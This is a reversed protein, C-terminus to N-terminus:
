PEIIETNSVISGTVEGNVAFFAATQRVLELFVAASSNPDIATNGATVPTTHSGEVYRTILRAPESSAAADATKIAEITAALPETGTLPAPFNDIVFGSDLVTQLPGRNEGWLSDAANVIHSDPPIGNESNGIVESVLVGTNELATSLNLPDASDMTGQFVALYTELASKDQTLQDSASALAPLIQPGFTPSNTLLTPIAGGPFISSVAQTKPLASFPSGQVQPLNNIAAFSLSDMAGLSHGMVYVSNVDIENAEGDGDIDMTSLSASLNLLDLTMQRRSDRNNPFNSLNVLLSGSIGLDSSYDMAIPSQQADATYDYHREILNEAPSAPLNANIPADPDTVSFLGPVKSGAPEIGHLPGDIALTVFCPLGSPGSLDPAICAFALANAMPLVISRETSIGHQYIIVPWGQEPKNIGFAALTTPEPMVALLPVTVDSQKAPFPYRYSVKESPPTSGLDNGLGADIAFGITEDAIWVSNVINSGDNASPVKQYVPLSIQGQFILAPAELASNIESALDFRYFSSARASPVPFLENVSQGAGTALASVTGIAETAIDVYPEKDGQEASGSDHVSIAAEAAARQMIYAALGDEALTAYDGGAGIASAIQQQFLPNPSEDPLTPSTLLFNITSNIAGDTVTEQASNDGSLNYSGSVLKAIAQQKYTTRLSKEFFLEPAAINSLVSTTGGTTFSYSLVIDDATKEAVPLGAANFVTQQFDFYGEALQEWGKIAAQVQSLPISPSFNADDSRIYDYAISRYVPKGAHDKLQSIIVLYKTEPRLPRLPYIRITNNAVGDLSILEARATPAPLASLTAIDQAAVASQYSIAEAFTPTEVSVGDISAQLLADGGPYALPLLYVNQNPNPIVSGEVVVFSNADIIQEDDLPATFQIDIPAIVSNGDLDDIGSIVPNTSDEGASLTGDTEFMLDNPLPMESTAPSFVVYTKTAPIQESKTENGKDNSDCGLLLLSFGLALLTSIRIHM